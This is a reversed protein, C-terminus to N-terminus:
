GKDNLIGGIKENYISVLNEYEKLSERGKDTLSYIGRDERIFWSYYNEQLISPTKKENAGLEKLRKPSTPGSINLCCAIYLSDEKYSTILKKGRSGGTNLDISRGNFEKILKERKKINARISKERDFCTPNLPIEVLGEKDAFSVLILGLELRRLLHLIDKWRKSYILRKPKPIAIYVIDAIKQRKTGQLLLDVSLNKKLEVIILEQGKMATLDCYNNEGRVKYGLSILYDSIPKYLDEEKLKNIEQVSVGAM